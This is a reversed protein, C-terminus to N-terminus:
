ADSGGGAPLGIDFAAMIISRGLVDAYLRANGSGSFRAVCLLTKLTGTFTAEYTTYLPMPVCASFVQAGDLISSSATPTTGNTTHTIKSMVNDTTVTSDHHAPTTLGVWYMRGSTVPIDLYIVGIGTGSTTTSSASTRVHRALLNGPLTASNLTSATLKQGATFTYVM